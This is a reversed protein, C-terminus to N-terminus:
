NQGAFLFDGNKIDVVGFQSSDFHIEVFHSKRKWLKAIKDEHGSRATPGISVIIPRENRYPCLDADVFPNRIWLITGDSAIAALHRGDGELYLLTNTQKDLYSLPKGPRAPGLPWERISPSRCDTRFHPHEADYAAATKFIKSAPPVEYCQGNSVARQAVAIKPLNKFYTMNGLQTGNVYITSVLKYWPGDERKQTFWVASDSSNICRGIFMRVRAVLRGSDSVYYNGPYSSQIALAGTDSGDSPSRFYVNTDLDCQPCPRGSFVLYPEKGDVPLEGLLRADYLNTPFESGNGYVLKSHEQESAHTALAASLPLAFMWSCRVRWAYRVRADRALLETLRSLVLISESYNQKPPELTQLCDRSRSTM